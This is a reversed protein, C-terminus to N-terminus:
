SYGTSEAASIQFFFSVLINKYLVCLEDGYFKWTQSTNRMRLSECGKLCM